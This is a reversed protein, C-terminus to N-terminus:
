KNTYAVSIRGDKNNCTDWVEKGFRREAFSHVSEDGGSGRRATLDNLVSGLLAVM